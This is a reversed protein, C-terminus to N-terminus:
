PVRLGAVNWYSNNPIDSIPAIEVAKVAMLVRGGM